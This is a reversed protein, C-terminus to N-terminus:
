CMVSYQEPHERVEPMTDKNLGTDLQNLIQLHASLPLPSQCANALNYIALHLREVPSADHLHFGPRGWAKGEAALKVYSSSDVSQVGLSFLESVIEPKGVGFVHIPKDPVTSRIAKVIRFFTERDRLRPVLGGIAIGDFDHHAYTQACEVYSEIDWGQVCAYLILDRRRRNNLAWVANAITLELRRKAENVHTGPPIPFDLTFAIDANEEQFDLVDSPHIKEVNDDNTRVLVGLGNRSELKTGNLLCAFGGSDIMLPVSPRRDMQKAYHLSVMVASALRPLYPRILDDLPYKNGFTTVPVYAPFPVIGSRTQLAKMAHSSM